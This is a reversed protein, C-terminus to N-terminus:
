AGTCRDRTSSRVGRVGALCWADRCPAVWGGRQPFHAGHGSRLSQARQGFDHRVGARARGALVLHRGSGRRPPRGTSSERLESLLRANEIAIVAQKAFSEVLEIQKDTFARLERRSLSFAGVVEGERLMPVWLIARANGRQVIEMSTQRGDLYVEDAVMDTVHVTTKLRMMREFPRPGDPVVILPGRMRVAVFDAIRSARMM